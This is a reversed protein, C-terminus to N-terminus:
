SDKRKREIEQKSYPQVCLRQFQAPWLMDQECDQISHHVKQAWNAEDTFNPLRSRDHISYPKYNTLELVDVVAGVCQM